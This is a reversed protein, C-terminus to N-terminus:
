RGALTYGGKTRTSSVSAPHLPPHPDINQFIGSVARYEVYALVKHSVKILPARDLVQHSVAQPRVAGCDASNGGDVGPIRSNRLSKRVEGASFLNLLEIILPIEAIWLRFSAVGSLSGYKVQLFLPDIATYDATKGSDM